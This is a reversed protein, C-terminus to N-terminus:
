SKFKNNKLSLIHVPVIRLNHKRSFFKQTLPKIYFLPSPIDKHLKLEKLLKKSAVILNAIIESYNVIFSFSVFTNYPSQWNM